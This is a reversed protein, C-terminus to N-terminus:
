YFKRDQSFNNFIQSFNNFSQDQAVSFKRDGSIQDVLGWDKNTLALIPYEFILTFTLM